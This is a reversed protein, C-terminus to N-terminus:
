KLTAQYRRYWLLGLAILGSVVVVILAMLVRRNTTLNQDIASSVYPTSAYLGSPLPRGPNPYAMQFSSFEGTNWQANLMAELGTVMSEADYDVDIAPEDRILEALTNPTVPREFDHDSVQSTIEVIKWEDQPTSRSVRISFDSAENAAWLYVDVPHSIMKEMLAEYGEDNESIPESIASFSVLLSSQSGGTIAGYYSIVWSKPLYDHILGASLVYVGFVIAAVLVLDAIYGAARRGSNARSTTAAPNINEVGCEPCRQPGDEFLQYGCGRCLREVSTDVSSWKYLVFWIGLGM